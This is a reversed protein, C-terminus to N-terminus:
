EVSQENGSKFQHNLIEEFIILWQKNQIFNISIKCPVNQINVVAKKYKTEM